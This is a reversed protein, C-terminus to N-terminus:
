VNNASETDKANTGSHKKSLKHHDITAFQQGYDDKKVVVSDKKLERLGERGRRAFHLDMEVFVKHQLSVPDNNSWNKKM